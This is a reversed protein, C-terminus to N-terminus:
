NKIEIGTFSIKGRLILRKSKDTEEAHHFRKDDIAAVSPNINSIVCWDDPVYIEIGGFSSYIDIYTDGPQLNTRRLDIVTAGFHNKINAGKFVEDLVIKRVSGFNNESVIYGDESSYDTDIAYGGNFHHRWKHPIFLQLLIYIGLFVLIWPWLPAFQQAGTILPILFFGGVCSIFIGSYFHRHFVSWIGAILLLMPWSIFIGSIYTSIYDMNRLVIILGCLIFLSATVIIDIKVRRKWTNKLEETTKM